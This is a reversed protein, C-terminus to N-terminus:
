PMSLLVRLERFGSGEVREQLDNKVSGKFFGAHNM